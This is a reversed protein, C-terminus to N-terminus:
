LWILSVNRGMEFISNFEAPEGAHVGMNHQSRVLNLERVWGMRFLSNLEVAEGAHEGM